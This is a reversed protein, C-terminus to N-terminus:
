KKTIEPVLEYINLRSVDFERNLVNSIVNDDTFRYTEPHNQIESLAKFAKDYTAFLSAAYLNDCRFGNPTKEKIYTFGYVVERCNELEKVGDWGIDFNKNIQIFDSQNLGIAYM